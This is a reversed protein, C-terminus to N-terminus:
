TTSIRPSDRRWRHGVFAAFSPRKENGRRLHDGHQQHRGHRGHRGDRLVVVDWEVNETRGLEHRHNLQRELGIKRQVTADVPKQSSSMSQSPESGNTLHTKQFFRPLLHETSCYCPRRGPQGKREKTRVRKLGFLRNPETSCLVAPTKVTGNAAGTVCWVDLADEVRM